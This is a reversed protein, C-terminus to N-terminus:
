IFQSGLFCQPEPTGPIGTFCGNKVGQPVKLLGETNFHLKKLEAFIFAITEPLLGNVLPSEIVLGSDIFETGPKCGDSTPDKPQGGTAVVVDYQKSCGSTHAMCARHSDLHNMTLYGEYWHDDEMYGEVWYGAILVFWNSFLNGEELGSPNSPGVTSTCSGLEFLSDPTDTFTAGCLSFGNVPGFSSMPPPQVEIQTRPSNFNNLEIIKTPPNVNHQLQRHNSSMTKRNAAELKRRHNPPDVLSYSQQACKRSTPELGSFNTSFFVFYCGELAAFDLTEPLKPELNPCAFELDGSALTKGLKIVATDFPDQGRFASDRYTCGAQMVPKITHVDLNTNRATFERLLAIEDLQGTPFRSLIQYGGNIFGTGPRCKGNALAVQAGGTVIAFDYFGEKNDGVLGAQLKGEYNVSGAFVFKWETDDPNGFRGPALCPLIEDFDSSSTQRGCVSVDVFGKALQEQLDTVFGLPEYELKGDESYSYNGVGGHSMYDHFKHWFAAANKNPVLSQIQEIVWELHARGDYAPHPKQLVYHAERMLAEVGWPSPVQKKEAYAQFFIDGPPAPHAGFLDYLYFQTYCKDTLTSFFATESAERVFWEGSAATPELHDQARIEPCQGSNAHYNEVVPLEVYQGHKSYVYSSHGPEAGSECRFTDRPCDHFKANGINDRSAAGPNRPYCTDDEYKQCLLGDHASAGNVHAKCSCGPIQQPLHHVQCRHENSPCGNNILPYNTGTTESCWLEKGTTRGGRAEAKSCAIKGVNDTTLGNRYNECYCVPVRNHSEKGNPIGSYFLEAVSFASAANALAAATFLRLMM